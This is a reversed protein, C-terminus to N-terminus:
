KKSGKKKARRKTVSKRAKQRQARAKPEEISKAAQIAVSFGMGVMGARSGNSVAKVMRKTIKKKAM